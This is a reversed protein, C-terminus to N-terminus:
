SQRRLAGRPIDPVTELRTLALGVPALLLYCGAGIWLSSHISFVISTGVAVGAALVGAAGNVAWFWPTPRRDIANVLRMGTPFGFGMLIGSPVIATLAVATRVALNGSEFTGVLLPFWASLAAVFFCLLGAWGVIRPASDLRIRESLLSGIGTSLIMSFLGIALGYVPHGLFLSVRQIVGIEVFMFGLGILSFWLTGLLALSAPAQRVTPLSPGVITALVLAMSLVVIVAITKAAALNGKIVGDKAAGASRVSVLDTLVLQNFFFPRDDTPATLDIHYERVLDDFEAATTANLVSALVPSTPDRDPSVLETFGLQNTTAHLEALDNASFPTNSVIITALIPSSALYIQERPHLVNRSRLTAAALSLLRGAESIDEPNYWRSVTLVGNPALANLFHQWGEVTYLGNESLSFAGAGTAAWTDILSMEILDFREKTRAFWSRAEDVFLRTGSLDALRNYDRFTGTLWKVFIPNLEVGTVDTFGFYHASLLDRGGGVGIVASRGHNRIAYALNTVDYKLFWLTSLDGDFRYMTTAAGGDIEMRMQSIEVPPTKPSPGSIEPRTLGAPEARVRSFSNWEQAAPVSFELREKVITPRIGYPEAWGNLGALVALLVALLAPYRLVFWRNVWSGQVAEGSSRRWAARFCSAAAAAVAGVAFLASVGDLWSMLALAVLCGTAAGVLDVGYVLGVPWPSRTLALSIAMGALVYPPLIILILKFWLLAMLGSALSTALVTSVTSLTSVVVAIAFASAIWSLHELLRDSQFRHANFYILLAGLTMGFMAMSIAFFALYYWAIVSLLRTQIIQLMLGCMCVLFVGILFM